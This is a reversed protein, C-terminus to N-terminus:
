ESASDDKKKFSVVLVSDMLIEIKIYLATGRYTPKYVYQWEGPRHNSPLTRSYDRLTLGANAGIGNV